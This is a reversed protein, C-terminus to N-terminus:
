SVTSTCLSDGEEDFLFLVFTLSLQDRLLPQHLQQYMKESCKGVIISCRSLVESFVVFIFETARGCSSFYCAYVRLFMHFWICVCVLSLKVFPGLGFALCAM